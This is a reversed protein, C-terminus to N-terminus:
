SAPRRVLAWGSLQLEGTIDRHRRDRHRRETTAAGERRRREGARRDVIVDGTMGGFIHQLYTHQAPRTRSVIILLHAM